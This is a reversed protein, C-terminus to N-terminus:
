PGSMVKVTRNESQVIYVGHGPLPTTVEEGGKSPCPSAVLVGAINYVSWQKGATLGSLHLTGNAVWAKLATAQSVNEIGTANKIQNFKKWGAALLYATYSADPVYLTAHAYAAAAFVNDNITQPAARNNTVSTLNTCSAFANDPITQVNNGINLATLNPCADFVGSGVSTCNTANYNLTTLGSCSYFAYGGISTVL